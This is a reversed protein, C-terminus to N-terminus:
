VPILLPSQQLHQQMDNGRMSASRLPPYIRHLEAPDIQWEGNEEKAVSIKGAKIARLIANKNRGVAAAATAITYM